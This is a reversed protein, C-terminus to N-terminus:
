EYLDAQEQQEILNIAIGVFDFDTIIGVMKHNSMVPLCGFKNKQLKLGAIRLPDNDSVYSISKSMIQELLIAKDDSSHQNPNLQSDQARFLDRQTIIGIPYNDDNVVPIHRINEKNMLEKASYLNDTAKLTFVSETMVENVTIM